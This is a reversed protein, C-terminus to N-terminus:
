IANHSHLVEEAQESTLLLLSHSLQQSQQEEDCSSQEFQGPSCVGPSCAGVAPPPQRM